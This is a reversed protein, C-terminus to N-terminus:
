FIPLRFNDISCFLLIFISFINLIFLLDGAASGQSWESNLTYSVLCILTRKKVFFVNYTRSTNVVFPKMYKLSSHYTAFFISIQFLRPSPTLTLLRCFFFTPRGISYERQPVPRLNFNPRIKKGPVLENLNNPRQIVAKSFIANYWLLLTSYKIIQTTLHLLFYFYLNFMSTPGQNPFINENLMSIKVISTSPSKDLFIFTSWKSNNEQWSLKKGKVNANRPRVKPAQCSQM